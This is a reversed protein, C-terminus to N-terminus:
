PKARDTKFPMKAMRKKLIIKRLEEHQKQKYEPLDYFM